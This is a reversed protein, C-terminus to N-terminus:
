CYRGPGVTVGRKKPTCLGRVDRDQLWQNVIPLSVVVVGAARAAACIRTLEEPAQAALSCPSVSTWM